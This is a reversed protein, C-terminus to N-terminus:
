DPSTNAIYLVILTGSGPWNAKGNATARSIAAGTTRSSRPSIKRTTPERKVPQSRNRFPSCPSHEEIARIAGPRSKRENSRTEKTGDIVARVPETSSVSCLFRSPLPSRSRNSPPSMPAQGASHMRKLQVAKRFLTAVRFSVRQALAACEELLIPSLEQWTCVRRRWALEAILLQCWGRLCFWGFLTFCFVAMASAEPFIIFDWFGEGDFVLDALGSRLIATSVRQPPGETLGTWGADKAWQSLAMGSEKESEVADGASALEPKRHPRTKGILRVEIVSPAVVPLSSWFYAPLYHIQIPTLFSSSCVWITGTQVVVALVALRAFTALFPRGNM